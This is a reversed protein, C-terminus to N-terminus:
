DPYGVPIVYLPTERGKTELVKKIEAEKMAGVPVSGMGLAAAQLHVNQAAHGAEMHVYMEGRKGYGKVTREYFATFVISAPAQAVWPQGLCAEALSQRYDGERVKVLSHDDVKYKYIGKENVLYTELPYTAGASPCTRYSGKKRNIGQGAWLLQGTEKDTLAKEKFKRVSRRRWLAEEVSIKGKEAPAPLKIVEKKEVEGDKQKGVDTKECAGTSILLISAILTLLLNRFVSNKM